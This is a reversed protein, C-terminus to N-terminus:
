FQQTHYLFDQHHGLCFNLANNLISQFFQLFESVIHINELDTVVESASSPFYGLSLKSFKWTLLEYPNTYTSYTVRERHRRM